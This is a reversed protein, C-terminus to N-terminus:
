LGGADLLTRLTKLIKYSSVSVGQDSVSIASDCSWANLLSKRFKKDIFEMYTIFLLLVIKAQAWLTDISPHM